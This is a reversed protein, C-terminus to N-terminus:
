PWRYMDGVQGSPASKRITGGTRADSRIDILPIIRLVNVENEKINTGESM